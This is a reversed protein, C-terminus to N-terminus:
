RRGAWRAPRYMGEGWYGNRKCPCQASTTPTRSLWFGGLSLDSVSSSQVTPSVSRLLQGMSPACPRRVCSAFATRMAATRPGLDCTHTMSTRICGTGAHRSSSRALRRTLTDRWMRSRVGRCCMEDCARRATTAIVDYRAYGLVVRQAVAASMSGRVYPTRLAGMVMLM